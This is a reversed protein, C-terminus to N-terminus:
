VDTVRHVRIFASYCCTNGIAMLRSCGVSNGIALLVKINHGEWESTDGANLLALIGRPRRTNNSKSSYHDMAWLSTVLQGNSTATLGM